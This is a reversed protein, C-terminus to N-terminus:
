IVVSFLGCVVELWRVSVCVKLESFVVIVGVSFISIKGVFLWLLMCFGYKVRVVVSNISVFSNVWVFNGCMLFLVVGICVDVILMM